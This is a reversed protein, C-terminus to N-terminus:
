ATPEEVPTEEAPPEEEAPTEPPPAPADNSEPRVAMETPLDYKVEM